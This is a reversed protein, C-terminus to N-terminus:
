ELNVFLLNSISKFDKVYIYRTTRRPLITGGIKQLFKMNSRDIEEKINTVLKHTSSKNKIFGNM